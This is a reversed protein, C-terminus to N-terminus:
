DPIYLMQVVPKQRQESFVVSLRRDSYFLFHGSVMQLVHIFVDTHFLQVGCLM